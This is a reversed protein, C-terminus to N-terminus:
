QAAEVALDARRHAPMLLMSGWAAAAGALAMGSAVFYSQGGM